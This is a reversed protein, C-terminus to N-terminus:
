LVTYAEEEVEETEEIPFEETTLFKEKVNKNLKKALKLSQTIVLDLSTSLLKDM